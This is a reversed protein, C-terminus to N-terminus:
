PGTCPFNGCKEVTAWEPNSERFFGFTSEHVDTFEPNAFNVIPIYDTQNKHVDFLAHTGGCFTKKSGFDYFKCDKFETVGGWAADSFIMDYSTGDRPYPKNFGTTFSPLMM